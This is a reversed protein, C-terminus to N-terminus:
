AMVRKSCSKMPTRWATDLSREPRCRSSRTPVGSPCSSAVGRPCAARACWSGPTPGDADAKDVFLADIPFRMFMMHISSTRLYLGEDADMSGRGMLGLFRQSFSEGM